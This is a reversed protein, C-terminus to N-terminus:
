RPSGPPPDYPNHGPPLPPHLPRHDPPQRYATQAARRSWTRTLHLALFGVGLLVLSSLLLVAGMGYRDGATTIGESSTLAFSEVGEGTCSILETGMWNVIALPVFGRGAPEVSELVDAVGEPAQIVVENVNREGTSYVRSKTTCAVTSPDVTEPHALVLIGGTLGSARVADTRVEQGPPFEADISFRDKDQFVGVGTVAMVAFLATLLFGGFGVVIGM